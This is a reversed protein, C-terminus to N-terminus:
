RSLIAGLLGGALAALVVAFLTRGKAEAAARKWADREARLGAIEILLPRAAEAAAREVARRLQEEYDSALQKLKEQCSQELATLEDLCTQLPVTLSESSSEPSTPEPSQAPVPSCTLMLFPILFLLRKM